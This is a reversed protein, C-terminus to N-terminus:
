NMLLLQSLSSLHAQGAPKLAKFLQKPHWQKLNMRAVHSDTNARGTAKRQLFKLMPCIESVTWGTRQYKGQQFVGNVECNVM